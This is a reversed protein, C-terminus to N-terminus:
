FAGPSAHGDKKTLVPLWNAGLRSARAKAGSRYEERLHTKFASREQRCELLNASLSDASLVRDMRSDELHHRDVKTVRM